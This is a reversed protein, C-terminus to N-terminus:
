LTILKMNQFFNRLAHIIRVLLSIIKVFIYFERGSPIIIHPNTGKFMKLANIATIYADIEVPMKVFDKQETVIIRDIELKIDTINSHSARGVLM